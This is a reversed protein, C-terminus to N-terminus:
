GSSALHSYGKFRYIKDSNFFYWLDSRFKRGRPYYRNLVEYYLGLFFLTFFMKFESDLISIKTETERDMYIGSLVLIGSLLWFVTFCISIGFLM